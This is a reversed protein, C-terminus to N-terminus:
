YDLSRLYLLLEDDNLKKLIYRRLKSDIQKQQKEGKSFANIVQYFIESWIGATGAFGLEFPMIETESLPLQTNELFEKKFEGQLLIYPEKKKLAQLLDEPNNINLYDNRNNTKLLFVEQNM